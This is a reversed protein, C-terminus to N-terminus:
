ASHLCTEAVLVAGLRRATEFPLSFSVVDPESEFRIEVSQGVRDPNIVCQPDILDHYTGTGAFVEYAAVKLVGGNPFIIFQYTDRKTVSEHIVHIVNM